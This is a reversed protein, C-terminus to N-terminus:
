TQNTVLVVAQNLTVAAEAMAALEDLQTNFEGAAEDLNTLFEPLGNAQLIGGIIGAWQRCRHRHDGLPRGVQNWHIIMGALEGLIEARHEKAYAIPNNNGFDRDEPRGEYHLRIPLGRAVLDPSTRTCNMTIAWLMDNPLDVNTSQGLIRLAINPAVSNSEIFPSSIPRGSLSKANDFILIPQQQGRLIACVRKNLEEDDTTFAVTRPDEGGLVVGITRALLTKGVSPQNGDVLVLGKGTDQFHAPLLGTQMAGVTNIVDADALFCFDSLLRGLHTPLRSLASGVVDAASPMVPEVDNGHILVGADAHWGNGLFTFDEDFVPRSAYTRIRPLAQRIPEANLLLETFSKPPPYQIPTGEETLPAQECIFTNALMSTAYPEVRGDNAVTVLRREGADGIEVVISSGYTYVRGSEVLIEGAAALVNEQPLRFECYRTVGHLIPLERAGPRAAREARQRGRRIRNALTAGRSTNAPRPM